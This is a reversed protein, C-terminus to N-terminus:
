RREHYPTREAAGGKKSSRDNASFPRRGWENTRAAELAADISTFKKDGIRLRPEGLDIPELNRNHLVSRPGVRDVLQRKRGLRIKHALMDASRFRFNRLSIPGKRDIMGIRPIESTRLRKPSWAPLNAIVRRRDSV